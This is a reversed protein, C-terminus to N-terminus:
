PTTLSGARRRRDDFAKHCPKCLERYDERRRTYAGTNAWETPREAGCEECRGAKPHYKNLWMHLAGYSM